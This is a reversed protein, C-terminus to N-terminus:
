CLVYQAAGRSIKQTGLELKPCWNSNFSQKLVNLCPSNDEAATLSAQRYEAAPLGHRRRSICKRESASSPFSFRLDDITNLIKM